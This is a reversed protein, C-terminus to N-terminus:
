FSLYLLLVMNLEMKKKKLEGNIQIVTMLIHWICFCYIFFETM